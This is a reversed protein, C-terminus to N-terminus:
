GDFVKMSLPVDNKKKGCRACCTVTESGELWGHPVRIRRAEEITSSWDHNGFFCKIRDFM